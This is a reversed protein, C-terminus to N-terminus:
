ARRSILKAIVADEMARRADETVGAIHPTAILRTGLALVESQQGLHLHDLALRLDTRDVLLSQIAANTILDLRGTNILISSERMAGIQPSDIMGITENTLPVCLAVVDSTELVEDLSAMVVGPEELDRHEDPRRTHVLLECGMAALRPVLAHCIAGAGIMGFRRGELSRAPFQLGERDSGSVVSAAADPYDRLHMLAFMMIHEAVAAANAGAADILDIGRAGVAKLDIHDVGTSVTALVSLSPLAELVDATVPEKVGVVLTDADPHEAVLNEMARPRDREIVVPSYCAELDSTHANTAFTPMTLFIKAM